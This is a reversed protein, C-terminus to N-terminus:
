ATGRIRFVSVIYGDKSMVEYKVVPYGYKSIIQEIELHVDQLKAGAAFSEKDEPSFNYGFFSPSFDVFRSFADYLETKPRSKIACSLINHSLIVYLINLM